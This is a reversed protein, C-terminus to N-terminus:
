DTPTDLTSVLTGVPISRQILTKLSSTLLVDDCQMLEAGAVQVNVTLAGICGHVTEHLTQQLAGRRM